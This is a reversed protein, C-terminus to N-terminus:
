KKACYKSGEVIIHLMIQIDRSEGGELKDWLPFYKQRNWEHQMVQVKFLAQRM